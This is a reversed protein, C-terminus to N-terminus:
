KSNNCVTFNNYLKNTSSLRPPEPVGSTGPRPALQGQGPLPVRDMTYLKNTLSPAGHRGMSQVHSWEPPRAPNEGTWLTELTAYNQLNYNLQQTLYYSPISPTDRLSCLPVSGLEHTLGYPKNSNLLHIEKKNHTFVGTLVVRCRKNCTKVLM